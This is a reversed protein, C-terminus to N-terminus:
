SVMEAKPVFGSIYLSSNLPMLRLAAQPFLSKLTMDLERVDGIIILDVSTVNNDGDWVNLQTVGARLASLQISRDSIPVVRVLEPNNVLMRPVAFPFEVVRSGNVTMELRESPGRVKFSVGAAAAQDQANLPATVALACGITAALALWAKHSLISM